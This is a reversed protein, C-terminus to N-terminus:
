VEKKDKERNSDRNQIAGESQFMKKDKLQQSVVKFQKKNKGKQSNKRDIKSVRM